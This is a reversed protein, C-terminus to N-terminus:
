QPCSDRLLFPIAMVTLLLLGFYLVQICDWFRCFSRQENWLCVIWYWLLRLKHGLCYSQVLQLQMTRHLCVLGKFSVGGLFKRKMKPSQFTFTPLFVQFLLCIQGQLISHLLFFALLSKGLCHVLWLLCGRGVVCSFIRCTCHAFVLVPASQPKSWSSRM